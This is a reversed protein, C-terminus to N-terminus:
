AAVEALYPLCAWVTLLKGTLHALRYANNVLQRQKRRLSAGGYLPGPSYHGPSVQSPTSLKGKFMWRNAYHFPLPLM